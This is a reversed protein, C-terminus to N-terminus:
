DLISNPSQSTHFSARFSCNYQLQLRQPNKSSVLSFLKFELEKADRKSFRIAELFIGVCKLCFWRFMSERSMEACHQMHYQQFLQLCVSSVSNASMPLCGALALTDWHIRMTHCCALGDDKKFHPSLIALKLSIKKLQLRSPARKRALSPQAAQM